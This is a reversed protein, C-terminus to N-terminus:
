ATGQDGTFLAYSIMGKIVNGTGAQLKLADSEELVIPGKALNQTTVSSLKITSIESTNGVSSDYMHATVTTTGSSVNQTQINQLIARSSVSLTLVTTQATGTLSFRANKYQITM